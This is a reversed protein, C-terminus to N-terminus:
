EDTKRKPKEKEKGDGNLDHIADWYRTVMGASDVVFQGLEYAQSILITFRDRASRGKAMFLRALQLEHESDTQNYTIVIDAITGKAHSEALHSTRQIKVKGGERNGQSATAVALNRKQALARLRRYLAAVSLRYNNEDIQMEDAYDIILLDPVLSHVMALHDLYAELENASLTGSPFERIVLPARRRLAGVKKELYVRIGEDKFSGKAKVTKQTMKEFRGLEDSEFIRYVCKEDPETSLGLVSQIYRQCVDMESLECTVYVVSMSHLLAQKALHILWWSKGMGTQGMMVHLRKRGPGLGKQDIEKIGTPFAEHRKDLFALSRKTDHIFCGPDVLNVTAELSGRLAAEAELIEGEGVGQQLHKVATTVGRKLRQYRAFLSAEAIVFERDVGDKTVQLSQFIKDYIDASEPNREKLTLILDITHEGPPRGYKEIHLAAQEALDRYYPDYQEPPVIALLFSPGGPTTDYCLLAILAEQKASSLQM